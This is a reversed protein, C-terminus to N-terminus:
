QVFAEPCFTGWGLEGVGTGVAILCHEFLTVHLHTRLMICLFITVNSILACLCLIEHKFRKRKMGRKRGARRRKGVEGKMERGERERSDRKAIGKREERRM